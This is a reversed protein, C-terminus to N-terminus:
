YQFKDSPATFGNDSIQQSFLRIKHPYSPRRPGNWPLRFVHRSHASLISVAICFGNAMFTIEENLASCNLEFSSGKMFDVSFGCVAVSNLRINPILQKKNSSFIFLVLSTIEAREIDTTRSQLCLVVMRRSFGEISNQENMAEALDPCRFLFDPLFVVLCSTNGVYFPVTTSLFIKEPKTQM